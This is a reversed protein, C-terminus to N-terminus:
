SLHSRRGSRLDIIKSRERILGYYIKSKWVSEPSGHPIVVLCISRTSRGHLRLFKQRGKQSGKIQVFLKGIDITEVVIDIGQHDEDETSLRASAIWELRLARDSQLELLIRLAREEKGHGYQCETQHIINGIGM